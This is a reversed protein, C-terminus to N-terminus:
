NNSAAQFDQYHQNSSLTSKATRIESSNLGLRDMLWELSELNEAEIRMWTDNRGIVVRESLEHDIPVALYDVRSTMRYISVQTGGIYDRIEFDAMKKLLEMAKKVKLRNNIDVYLFM